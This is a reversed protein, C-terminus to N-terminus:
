DEMTMREPRRALPELVSHLQRLPGMLDVVLLPYEGDLAGTRVVVSQIVAAGFICCPVDAAVVVESQVNYTHTRTVKEDKLNFEQKQNRDSM